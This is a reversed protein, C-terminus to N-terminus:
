PRYKRDLASRAIDGRVSGAMMGYRERRVASQRVRQVVLGLLLAFVCVTVLRALGASLAMAPWDHFEARVTGIPERGFSILALSTLMEAATEVAAFAPARWLWQNLPLRSLHVTLMTLLFIAGLAFAGGIYLLNDGPGNSLIMARFVRLLVGTIVAMEVLSVAVKQFATPEDPQWPPLPPFARRETGPYPTPTTM